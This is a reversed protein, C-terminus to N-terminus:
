PQRLADFWRELLLAESQLVADRAAAEADVGWQEAQFAEDLRSLDFARQGGLEGRQLALALVASGFLAAAWSLGALGFDDLDLALAQVRAATEPPQPRHIIGSTRVFRLGLEREAWDLVPAWNVTEREVLAAPADAFYCLLDSAAYNATERAVAERAVAIRDLATFALRTAPMLAYNVYDDIGDWERAILEGLAQTPLLLASGAPSKAVRGDLLVAYSAEGERAQSRAGTTASKWFRKPRNLADHDDRRAPM